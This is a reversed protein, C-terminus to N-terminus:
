SAACSVQPEERGSGSPIVLFSAAYSVNSPALYLAQSLIPSLVLASPALCHPTGYIASTEVLHSVESRLCSSSILIGDDVLSEM